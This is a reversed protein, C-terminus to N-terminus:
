LLKQEKAKETAFDIETKLSNHIKMISVEGWDSYINFTTYEKSKKIEVKAKTPHEERYEAKSIAMVTFFTGQLTPETYLSIVHCDFERIGFYERGEFIILKKNKM